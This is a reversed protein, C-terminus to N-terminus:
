VEEYKEIIQESTSDEIYKSYGNLEIFLSDDSRIDIKM